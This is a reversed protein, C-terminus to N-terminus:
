IILHVVVQWYFKQYTTLQMFTGSLKTFYPSYMNNISMFVTYKAELYIDGSDTSEKLVSPM